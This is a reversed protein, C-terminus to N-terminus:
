GGLRRDSTKRACSSGEGGGVGARDGDPHASGSRRDFRTGCLGKSGHRQLSRRQAQPRHSLRLRGGLIADDASRLNRRLGRDCERRREERLLFVAAIFIKCRRSKAARSSFRTFVARLPTRQPFRRSALFIIASPPAAFRNKTM